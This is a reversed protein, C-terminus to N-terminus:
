KNAEGLAEVENPTMHGPSGGYGSGVKIAEMRELHLYHNRMIEMITTCTLSVVIIIALFLLTNDTELFKM